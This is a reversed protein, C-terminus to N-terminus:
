KEIENSGPAMRISEAAMYVSRARLSKRKKDYGGNELQVNLVALAARPFTGRSQERGDLWPTWMGSYKKSEDPKWWLM